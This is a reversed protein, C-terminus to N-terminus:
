VYALNYNKFLIPMQRDGRLWSRLTSSKINYFDACDKACEYIFGNCTVRKAKCNNGGLSSNNETNKKSILKRTKESHKRGYFPNGEGSFKDSLLDKQEQSIEKGKQAEGIKIKADYSLTHGLTGEGGLTLNYGNYKYFSNYKDIYYIELKQLESIDCSCIIKFEFNDKGYKNWAHQLYKNGHRNNNLKWIHNNWRNYIDFSQGIYKKNNIKNNICYIGSINEM